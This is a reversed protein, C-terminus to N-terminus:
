KINKLGRHTHHVKVSRVQVHGSFTAGYADLLGGSIDQLLHANFNFVTNGRIIADPSLVLKQPLAMNLLILIVMKEDM